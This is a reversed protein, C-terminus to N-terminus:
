QFLTFHTEDVLHLAFLITPHHNPKRPQSSDSQTHPQTSSSDGPVQFCTQPPSDGTETCETRM